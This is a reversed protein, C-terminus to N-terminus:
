KGYPGSRDRSIDFSLIASLKMSSLVTSAIPALQGQMVFVRPVECCWAPVIFGSSAVFSPRDFGDSPMETDHLVYLQRRVLRPFRNVGEFENKIGFREFM